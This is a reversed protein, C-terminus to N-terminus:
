SSSRGRSRSRFRTRSVEQRGMGTGGEQSVGGVGYGGHSLGAEVASNLFGVGPQVVNRVRHAIRASRRGVVGQAAREEGKAVPQRGGLHEVERGLEGHEEAAEEELAVARLPLRFLKVPVLKKFAHLRLKLPGPAGVGFVGYPGDELDEVLVHAGAFHLVDSLGQGGVETVQPGGRRRLSDWENADAGLRAASVAAFATLGTAIGDDVLIVFRGTVDTVENAGRYLQTRRELEKTEREVAQRLRREEWRYRKDLYVVGGPAVAGVALEPEGPAGLKRTVIVDLPAGLARAM